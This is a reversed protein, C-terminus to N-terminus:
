NRQVLPISINILWIGYGLNEAQEVTPISINESLADKSTGHFLTTICSSHQLDTPIAWHCIRYRSSGTCKDLQKQSLLATKMTDDSFGLYPAEIVWLLGQYVDSQPMPTSTAKYVPISTQRPALPVSLTVRLGMDMLVVGELSDSDYYSILIEMPIALTMSRKSHIKRSRSIRCRGTFVRM